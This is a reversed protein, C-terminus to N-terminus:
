EVVSTPQSSEDVGAAAALDGEGVSPLDTSSSSEVPVTAAAMAQQQQQQQQEQQSFDQFQKVIEQLPARDFGRVQLRREMVNVVDTVFKESDMVLQKTIKISDSMGTRQTRQHYRLLSTERKIVSDAVQLFQARLEDVVKKTWDVIGEPWQDTVLLQDLVDNLPVIIKTATPTASDGLPNRTMRYTTTVVRDLAHIEKTCSDVIAKQLKSLLRSGAKQSRTALAQLAQVGGTWSKPPFILTGNEISKKLRFADKTHTVLTIEDFDETELANLYGSVLRCAMRFLHAALLVDKEMEERPLEEEYLKVLAATLSSLDNGKGFVQVSDQFRLECHMRPNWRLAAHPVGTPSLHSLIVRLAEAKRAEKSSSIKGVSVKVASMISNAPFEFVTGLGQSGAAELVAKYRTLVCDLVNEDVHHSLDASLLRRASEVSGMMVFARLRAAAEERPVELLKDALRHELDRRLEVCETEPVVRCLLALKQAAHTERNELMDREISQRLSRAFMKEKILKKKERIASLKDDFERIADAPGSTARKVAEVKDKLYSLPARLTGVTADVRVLDGSLELFTQHDRDILALLQDTLDQVTAKLDEVVADLSADGSAGALRSEVYAKADFSDGLFLGRPLGGGGGPSALGGQM